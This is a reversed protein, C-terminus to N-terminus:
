QAAGNREPHERALKFRVRKKPPRGSHFRPARTRNANITHAQSITPQPRRSGGGKGVGDGVGGGVAGGVAVAAGVAVGTGGVFVGSGAAVGTAM